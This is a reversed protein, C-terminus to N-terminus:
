QDSVISKIVRSLQQYRNSFIVAKEISKVYSLLDLRNEPIMRLYLTLIAMM